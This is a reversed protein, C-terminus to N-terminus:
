GRAVASSSKKKKSSNWVPSLKRLKALEASLCSLVYDMEEETTQKGLTFRVAAQARDRKVGMALWHSAIEAAKGLGVIGPLNETGGRKNHEQPGGVILPQMPTSRRIYIAGVGQPGNLKHGSISLLDCRIRAVDIPLKGAAQVADTHFWVDAEAAIQGIEELLQVVGTENNAMM